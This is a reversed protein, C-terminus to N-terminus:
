AGGLHDRTLDSLERLIPDCLSGMAFVLVQRVDTRFTGSVFGFGVKKWDTCIGIHRCM